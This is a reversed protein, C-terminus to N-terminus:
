GYNLKPYKNIIMRHVEAPRYRCLLEYGTSICLTGSLDVHNTQYVVFEHLLSVWVSQIPEALTQYPFEALHRLQVRLM